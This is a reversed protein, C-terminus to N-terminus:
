TNRKIRTLHVQLLIIDQMNRLVTFLVEDLSNKFNRGPWTKGVSAM